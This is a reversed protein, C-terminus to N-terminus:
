EGAVCRAEASTSGWDEAKLDYTGLVNKIYIKVNISDNSLAGLYVTDGKDVVVLQSWPLPANFVTTTYGSSSSVYSIAFAKSSKGTVEYKVEYTDRSCASLMLLVFTMLIVIYRM